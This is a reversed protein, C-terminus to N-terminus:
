TIKLKHSCKVPLTKEFVQQATPKQGVTAFAVSNNDIEFSLIKVFCCLHLYKGTDAQFLYNEQDTIEIECLSCIM